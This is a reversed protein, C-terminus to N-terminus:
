FYAEGSKITPKWECDGFPGDGKNSVYAIRKDNTKSQILDNEIRQYLDVMKFPVNLKVLEAYVKYNSTNVDLDDILIINKNSQM